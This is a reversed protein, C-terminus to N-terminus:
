NILGIIIVQKLWNTFFYAQLNTITQKTLNIMIYFQVNESRSDSGNFYNLTLLITFGHAEM